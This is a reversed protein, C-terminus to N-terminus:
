VKWFQFKKKLRLLKCNLKVLPKLNSIIRCLYEFVGEIVAYINLNAMYVVSNSVIIIYLIIKYAKDIYRGLWIIDIKITYILQLYLVFPHNVLGAALM